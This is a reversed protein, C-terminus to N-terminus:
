ERVTPGAGRARTCASERRASCRFAARRAGEHVRRCSSGSFLFTLIFSAKRGNRRAKMFVAVLRENLPATERQANLRTEADKRGTEDNTTIAEEFQVLWQRRLLWSCFAVTPRQLQELEAVLGRAVRERLAECHGVLEAFPLAGPQFLAGFAEDRAHLAALARTRSVLQEVISLLTTRCAGTVAACGETVTQLLKATGKEGLDSELWMLAGDIRPGALLLDLLVEPMPERSGAEDLRRQLVELTTTVATRAARWSGAMGELAATLGRFLSQLNEDAVALACLEHARRALLPLPQVFVSASDRAHTVLVLNCLDATLWGHVVDPCAFSLVAFGGSLWWVEAVGHRCVVALELMPEVQLSKGPGADLRALQTADLALKAWSLSARV